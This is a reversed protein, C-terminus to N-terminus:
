AARAGCARHATRLLRGRVCVRHGVKRRVFLQKTGVRLLGRIEGRRLTLYLRHDSTRMGSATTIPRGLGQAKASRVGMADIADSLAALEAGALQSLTDAGIIVVTGAGGAGIGAQRRQLRQLLNRGLAAQM